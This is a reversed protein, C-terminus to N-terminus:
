VATIVNRVLGGKGTEEGLEVHSLQRSGQSSVLEESLWQSQMSHPPAHQSHTCPEKCMKISPKFISRQEPTTSTHTVAQGLNQPLALPMFGQAGSDSHAMSVSICTRLSTVVAKAIM